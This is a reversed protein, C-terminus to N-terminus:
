IRRFQPACTPRINVDTGQYVVLVERILDEYVQPTLWPVETGRGTPVPFFVQYDTVGMGTGLAVVEKIARIEPSLVTTNIQVGVGANVCHRIGQVAREWAGCVGRFRDHVAPDASDISIAVRRVGADRIERAC